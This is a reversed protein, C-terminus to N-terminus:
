PVQQGNPVTPATPFGFNPVEKWDLSDAVISSSVRTGACALALYLAQLADVGYITYIRDDGLGRTRVMCGWAPEMDAAPPPMQFPTGIDVYAPFVVGDARTWQMVRTALVPAMPDNIDQV